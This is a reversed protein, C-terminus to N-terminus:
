RKIFFLWVEYHSDPKPPPHHHSVIDLYFEKARDIPAPGSKDIPSFGMNIFMSMKKPMPRAAVPIEL